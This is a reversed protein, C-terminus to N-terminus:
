KLVRFLHAVWKGVQITDIFDVMKYDPFPQGTEALFFEQEILPEKDDVLAWMCIQKDKLQSALINAGLPLAVKQPKPDATMKLIFKHITKM